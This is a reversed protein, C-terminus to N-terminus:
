VKIINRWIINLYHNSPKPTFVSINCLILVTRVNISKAYGEEDKFVKYHVIGGMTRSPDKLTVTLDGLANPTHSKIIGVVTELKRNKCYNKMNVLCSAEMVEEANLYEVPSLWPGRMFHDYESVDEIRKKVYEQTPMVYEPGGEMVNANKCILVAQLIGTPGPIIM